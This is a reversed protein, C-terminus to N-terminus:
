TITIGGNATAVARVCYRGDVSYIEVNDGVAATGGVFTLTTGTAPLVSTVDNVITGIFLNGAAGDLITVNNGAATEYFFRFVLGDNGVPTPLTIAVTNATPDILFTGGSDQVTLGYTTADLTSDTTETNGQKTRLGIASITNDATNFTMMAAGGAESIVLATSSAALLAWALDSLATFSGAATGQWNATTLGTAVFLQSGTGNKWVYIDGIATPTENGVPTVDGCHLALPLFQSVVAM